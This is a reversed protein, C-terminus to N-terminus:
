SRCGQIVAARANTGGPTIVVRDGSLSVSQAARVYSSGSNRFTGNFAGNVSVAGAANVSGSGQISGGVTGAVNVDSGTVTVDLNQVSAYRWPTQGAPCSLAPISANSPLNGYVGTILHGLPTFWVGGTCVALMKNATSAYLGEIACNAGPMVSTNLLLGKDSQITEGVTLTNHLTVPRTEGHRVFQGFPTSDLGAALVAHGPQSGFDFWARPIDMLPGRVSNSGRADYGGFGESALLVKSLLTQSYESRGAPPPTCDANQRLSRAASIPHCVYVFASTRCEEGPCVGERVLVFKAADGLTPFRPITTSLLGMATLDSLAGRAVQAGGATTWTLDPPPAYSGDPRSAPTEARMWAEHKLQLNIVAGRIQVLYRGTAEAASEDAQARIEAAAWTALLTVLMLGVLVEALYSGKQLHARRAMPSRSLKM